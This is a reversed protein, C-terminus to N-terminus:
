RQNETVYKIQSEITQKTLDSKRRNDNDSLIAYSTESSNSRPNVHDTQANNDTLLQGDIPSFLPANMRALTEMQVPVGKNKPDVDRIHKSFLKDLTEFRVRIRAIDTTGAKLESNRGSRLTQFDVIMNCIEDLHQEVYSNTLVKSQMQKIFFAALDVVLTSDVNKGLKPHNKHNIGQYIWRFALNLEKIQESVGLKDILIMDFDKTADFGAESLVKDLLTASENLYSNSYSQPCFKADLRPGYALLLISHVMTSTAFRRDEKLEDRIQSKLGSTELSNDIVFELFKQTLYHGCYRQERNNLSVSKNIREFLKKQREYTMPQWVVADIQFEHFKAYLLDHAPDNPNAIDKYFIKRVKGEELEVEVGFENNAFKILTEIRQKGDLVWRLNCNSVHKQVLHIVNIPIGDFISLILDGKYDSKWVLGRQYPPNTDFRHRQSILNDVTLKIPNHSGFGSFDSIM